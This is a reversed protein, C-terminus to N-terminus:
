DQQQNLWHTGVVCKCPKSEMDIVEDPDAFLHYFMSNCYCLKTATGDPKCDCGCRCGFACPKTEDTHSKQHHCCGDCGIKDDKRPELDQPQALQKNSHRVLTSLYKPDLKKSEDLTTLISNMFHNIQQTPLDYKRISWRRLENPMQELIPIMKFLDAYDPDHPQITKYGCLKLAGNTASKSKQLLNM